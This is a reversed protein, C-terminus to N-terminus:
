RDSERRGSQVSSLYWHAIEHAIEVVTRNDTSVIRNAAIRYLPERIELLKIIENYGSLQTLAPRRESTSADEAIRAAIIEPSAQMWVTRGNESLLMRNSERLIAGGGLSAVTAESAQVIKQIADSEFDRFASEGGDAFIERISKGAVQEVFDDSDIVPFGLIDGLQRGVSSKGCGRYGVLFLHSVM